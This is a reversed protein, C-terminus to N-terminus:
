RHRYRDILDWQKTTIRSTTTATERLSTSRRFRIRTDTCRVQLMRMLSACASSAARPRMASRLPSRKFANGSKPLRSSVLSPIESSAARLLEIVCGRVHRTCAASKNILENVRGSKRYPYHDISAPSNETKKQLKGNHCGGDRSINPYKTNRVFFEKVLVRTFSLDRM